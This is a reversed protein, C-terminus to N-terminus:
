QQYEVDQVNNQFINESLTAQSNKSVYLAKRNKMFTNKAISVTNENYLSIGWDNKSIINNYVKGSAFNGFIIGIPKNSIILNRVSFIYSGDDLDIGNNSNLQIKSDSIQVKSNYFIGIGSFGNNEFKSYNIRANSNNTVELGNIGNNEFYSNSITGSSNLIRLGDGRIIEVIKGGAFRCDEISFSANWISVVHAPENGLHEFDIGRLTLKANAFGMLRTGASSRIHTKNKGKGILTITKEVQLSKVLQYNGEALRLVAGDEATNIANELDDFAVISNPTKQRQAKLQAEQWVYFICFTMVLMPIFRRWVGARYWVFIKL